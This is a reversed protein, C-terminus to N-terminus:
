HGSLAFQVSIPSFCFSFPLVFGLSMEASTTDENPSTLNLFLLLLHLLSVSIHYYLLSLFFNLMESSFLSSFVTCMFCILTVDTSTSKKLVGNHLLTCTCSKYQKLFRGKFRSTQSRLSGVTFKELSQINM